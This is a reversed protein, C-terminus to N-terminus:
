IELSMIKLLKENSLETLAPAKNESIISDSLETKEKILEDIKEELSGKTVFKYVTVNKTQGIRYARDTAQNEVAPNWWRDFHIVNNASTLNLGVGGAKLSLVIFPVYEDKSNFLNVIQTRNKATTQGHIILGSRYFISELYNAIPECMEKYQTFVILKERKEYIAKAIEGLRTFKSSDQETFLSDQTYQSPHNLVQKLDSIVKLVLGKRGIGEEVLLKTEFDKLIKKYLVKQKQTISLYEFIEIKSPLDKIIDRDTKLRRLIFPKVKMRIKEYSEIKNDCNNIENVVKKFQSQSGLLGPNLFTMLSYLDGLGNEIPTGTMAIKNKSKLSHICKSQATSINKINQAEDLITLDWDTNQLEESSKLTGYTTITLFDDINKDKGYYISYTIKSNFKKIENMWNGLLSAPVILLCKYGKKYISELYALIQITKGLGMDDALCVGLNLDLMTSIWKFGEDQYSRLTGKFGKPVKYTKNETKTKLSKTFERFFRKQEIINLELSEPLKLLDVVNLNEKAKDKINEYKQLVEKIKKHDVEVWKNKIFHLGEALNLFEELEEKTYIDDELRIEPVLSLIAEKNFKGNANKFKSSVSFSRSKNKWWNPIRCKIGFSMYLELDKLIQFAEDETVGVPYFLEGSKILKDIINSEKQVKLIPAILNVIMKPNEKYKVLANKLPSHIVSSDEVESYTVMFAFPYSEDNAEVLNFYIREPTNLDQLKDEYYKKVSGNFKNIEADFINKLKSFIERVWNFTLNEFGKLYFYGDVFSEIEDEDLNIEVDSRLFEIDNSFSIIKHFFKSLGVIFKLNEGSYENLEWAASYLFEFKNKLFSEEIKKIEKFEVANNSREIIFEDETIILKLDINKSFAEESVRRM